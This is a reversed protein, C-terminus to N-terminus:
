EQVPEEETNKHYFYHVFFLASFSLLCLTASSIKFWYGYQYWLNLLYKTFVMVVINFLLSGTFTYFVFSLFNIHAFGAVLSSWPRVYGIFRTIFVTTKGHKAYWKHIAQSAKIFRPRKQMRKTLWGEGWWGLGFAIISGVLHATTLVTIMLVFPYGDQLLTAALIYSAEVPLPM